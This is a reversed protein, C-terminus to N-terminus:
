AAPVRCAHLAIHVPSRATCNSAWGLAITLSAKAMDAHVEHIPNHEVIDFGMLMYGLCV